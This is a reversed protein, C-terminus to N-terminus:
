TSPALLPYTIRAPSKRRQTSTGSSTGPWSTSSTGKSRSKRTTRRATPSYKRSAAQLPRPTNLPARCCNLATLHVTPKNADITHLVELTDRPNPLMVLESGNHTLDDADDHGFIHFFLIITWSGAHTREPEMNGEGPKGGVARQVARRVVFAAPRSTTIRFCRRHEARRVLWTTICTVLSDPDIKDPVFTGSNNVLSKFDSIAPNWRVDPLPATHGSMAPPLLARKVPPLMDKLACQVVQKLEGEQLLEVTPKRFEHLDMTVMM